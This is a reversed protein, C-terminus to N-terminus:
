FERDDPCQMQSNGNVIFHVFSVFFSSLFTLWLPGLATFGCGFSPNDRAFVFLDCLDPFLPSFFERLYNM